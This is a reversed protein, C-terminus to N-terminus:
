REQARRPDRWATLGPPPLPRGRFDDRSIVPPGARGSGGSVGGTPRAYAM